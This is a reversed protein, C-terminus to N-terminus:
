GDVLVAQLPGLLRSSRHSDAELQILPHRQPLGERRRQLQEEAVPRLRTDIVASPEGTLEAIDCRLHEAWLRRRTHTILESDGTVVNVETDNFLSHENLNASGITMWADDVIGIKAHVYVRQVASGELASLTCALFRDGNRDAESLVGLQGRTSERGNNPAVPLVVMVRFHTSPPRRLKDRLVEVVEPSWLFQSELYIFDRAARLANLYASAISFDGQELGPYTNETVTRLLQADMAGAAEPAPLSAYAAGGSDVWRMAFHEEVDAVLPGTIRVAADHWGISRRWPHAADDWRDGALSTLDIGGVYAVRNDVLVLKEHHCHMPREHHDARADVRNGAMLRELARRVQPRTPKFLPAPAGAWVLVRVPLTEAAHGLLERVTLRPSRQMAFDPDVHWGAIHVRQRAEAIDRVMRPLAEAGDVLVELHNGERLPM